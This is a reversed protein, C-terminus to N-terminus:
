EQRAADLDELGDGSELVEGTRKEGSEAMSDHLHAEFEVDDDENPEMALPIDVNMAEVNETEAGGPESGTTPVVESSPAEGHQVGPPESAIPKPEAAEDTPVRWPEGSGLSEKPLIGGGDSKKMVRELARDVLHKEENDEAM